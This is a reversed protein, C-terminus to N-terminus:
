TKAGSVLGSAALVLWGAILAIGGAPAAMPLPPSGTIAQVYLTGSFLLTGTAFLAGAANLLLLVPRRVQRALAAVGVLAIAHWFQIENASAFWHAPKDALSFGHAGVAAMIVALAGDIGAIFLWVRVIGRAYEGGGANRLTEHLALDRRRALGTVGILSDAVIVQRM